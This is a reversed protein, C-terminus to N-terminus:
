QSNIGKDYKLFRVRYGEPLRSDPARYRNVYGVLTPETAGQAQEWELFDDTFWDFIKSLYITESADDVHVHSATSVFERMAADLQADLMPATFAERPLRPCSISACNVAAHIRPDAFQDRILDDELRKLNTVEGDVTVKTRVFFKLGSILGRWVSKEEPGRDLVADFVLANYANIYYALRDNRTPFEEPSSRPGDTEIRRVYDDFQTRDANLAHYDVRGADDVFRELVATWQDHSFAAIAQGSSVLGAALM